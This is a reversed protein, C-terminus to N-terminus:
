LPLGPCVICLVVDDSRPQKANCSIAVQRIDTYVCQGSRGTHMNDFLRFMDDFKKVRPCECWEVSHRLFVRWSQYATAEVLM